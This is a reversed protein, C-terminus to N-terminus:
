RAANSRASWSGPPPRCLRVFFKSASCPGSATAAPNPRRSRPRQRTAISGVSAKTINGHETTLQDAPAALDELLAQLDKLSLLPLKGEDAIKFIINLVDEQAESLNM